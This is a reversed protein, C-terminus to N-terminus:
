GKVGGLTVGAVFYKQVFPYVFLIPLTGVITVAYRIPQVMLNAMAAAEGATVQSVDNNVLIERMVLQLPWLDRNMGLYIAEHFWSNWKMMITWLAIVALTAKVMPLLIYIMIKLPGAGDLKGSEAFSEPIQEFANKMVIIFFANTAGPIIVSLRNNILGLSTNVIFSPILGGGFMMTFVIAIMIPVRLKSQCSLVYGAIATLTLGLITHTSVYLLTNIYGTIIGRNNLVMEYARWQIDGTPLWNINTSMLLMRPDSISSMFIHWLPGICLVCFLTIIGINFINFVVRSKTIKEVM